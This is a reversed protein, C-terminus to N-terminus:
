YLRYFLNPFPSGIVKFKAVTGTAVVGSGGGAQMYSSDITVAASGINNAILLECGPIMNEISTLTFPTAGPNCVFNATRLLDIPTDTTLYGMGENQDAVANIGIGSTYISIQGNCTNNSGFIIPKLQSNSGGQSLTAFNFGGALCNFFNNEIRGGSLATVTSGIVINAGSSTFYGGHVSLNQCITGQVLLSISNSTPITTNVPVGSGNGEFGHNDIDWNFIDSIDMGAVSPTNDTNNGQTYGGIFKVNTAQGTHKFGQEKAEAFVCQIFINGNFAPTSPDTASFWNVNNQSIYINIATLTILRGTAYIGIIFPYSTGEWGVPGIEINTLNHQDNIDNVNDGIFWIGVCNLVNNPNKLCVDRICVNQKPAATANIAIVYQAGASPILVTRRFGDGFLVENNDLSISVKYTGAPAYISRGVARALNFAATSDAVGTPDAGYDLVNAPAGVIMSNTVKTLSM